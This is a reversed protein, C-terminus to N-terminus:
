PDPPTELLRQLNTLTHATTREIGRHAYLRGIADGLPGFPLQYSIDFTVRAGRDIPTVQQRMSLTSDGPGTVRYAIREPPDYATVDWDTRLDLGAIRITQQFTEGVSACVSPGTHDVTITSWRRLHDWEVLQAFVRDPAADIDISRQIHTM